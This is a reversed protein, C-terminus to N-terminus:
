EVASANDVIQEFAWLIDKKDINNSRYATGLASLLIVGMKSDEIKKDALAYEYLAAATHGSIHKPVKYLDLLKIGKELTSPTFKNIHSSLALAARMGIGVCIGHPLHFNCASEIAHGFTHGFNLINRIGRDKEDKSVLNAKIKISKEIIFSIAKNELAMISEKNDRLYDYTCIDDVYICKIIECMGSLFEEEPLTKLTATNIYVFEPQYFTGVMNKASNLNIATKGGVSSDVQSLLTTPIQVYSIGRMFTAAAFGALDGVVGGGVAIIVSNRDFKLQNLKEYLGTLENLSKSNEGAPTVHKYCDKSCTALLKNIIPSFLQETNSDFVCLIKKDALGAKKFANALNNFDNEIYVDYKKHPTEIQIISM